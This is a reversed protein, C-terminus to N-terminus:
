SLYKAKWSLPFHQGTPWLCHNLFRSLTSSSSRIMPPATLPMRIWKSVSRWDVREYTRLMILETLAGIAFATSTSLWPDFVDGCQYLQCMGMWLLRPDQGM